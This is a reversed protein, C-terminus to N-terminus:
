DLEIGLEDVIEKYRNRITVETVGSIDAIERQTRPRQNMRAAVYVAAAAVGTPSKGHTLERKRADLLLNKTALVIDPPLGLLNCFRPVYEEPESVAIRLRLNAKMSKHARTIAKRKLRSHREFDDLSRATKLKQNALYLSAAVMADISRGRVMDKELAKRYIVAAEEKVAKTLDMLGALRSMETLASEMNREFSSFSRARRQWKRMRFLQSRKSGTIRKGAFDTNSWHIDTSLGKDHWLVSTPPGARARSKDGDYDTWEKGPDIINEALVLGCDLCSREGRVFDEDLNRSGCDTCKVVTNEEMRECHQM